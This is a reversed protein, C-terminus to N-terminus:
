AQRKIMELNEDHDQYDVWLEFRCKFKKKASTDVIRIGRLHQCIELSNGLAMFILFEYVKEM